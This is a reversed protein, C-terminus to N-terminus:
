KCPMDCLRISQGPDPVKGRVIEKEGIPISVRIEVSRRESFDRNEQSVAKGIALVQLKGRSKLDRYEPVMDEWIKDFMVATYYARLQSLLYNGGAKSRSFKVRGHGELSDGEIYPSDESALKVFSKGFDISKGTYACSNDLPRPDTWGTVNVTITKGKAIERQVCSIQLATKMSAIIRIIASDVENAYERGSKKAEGLSICASNYKRAAEVVPEKYILTYDFFENEKCKLVPPKYELKTLTDYSLISSCTLYQSYRESTPCWYGTVFFRVNKVPFDQVCEPIFYAASDWVVLTHQKKQPCFGDFILTDKSSLFRRDNVTAEFAISRTRVDLSPDNEESRKVIIRSKGYKDTMVMDRGGLNLDTINVQKNSYDGVSDEPMKTVPDIKRTRTVVSLDITDATKGTNVMFVDYDRKVTRNSSFLFWNGGLSFVPHGEDSGEKNVGALAFPEPSGSCQGTNRDYEVRWIDYDGVNTQNTAYYVYGDNAAFPTQESNANTSIGKVLEPASWSNGIRRSVFVDTTRSNPSNRDSAFFLLNGEPSLSPTDDWAESNVSDLRRATWEKGDWHMEYLDNGFNKGNVPRNSVFIGYQPNCQSFTPCGDLIISQASGENNLPASMPQPASLSKATRECRALRRSRKDKMGSSTTLWIEAGVGVQRMAVAYDDDPTNVTTFAKAEQASVERLGLLLLCAVLFFRFIATM